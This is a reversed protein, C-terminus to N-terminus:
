KEKLEKAKKLGDATLKYLNGTISYIYGRNCLSHFAESYLTSRDPNNDNPFNKKGIRIFLNLQDASLKYIDENNSAVILLEKEEGTLRNEIKKRFSLGHEKVHDFVAKVSEYGIAYLIAGIVVAVIYGFHELM